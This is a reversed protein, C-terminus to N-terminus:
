YDGVDYVDVLCDNAIGFIFAKLSNYWVGVIIYMFFVVFGAFVLNM